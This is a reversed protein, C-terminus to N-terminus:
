RQRAMAAPYPSGHLAYRLGAFAALAVPAGLISLYVTSGTLYSAVNALLMVAIAVFLPIRDTPDIGTMRTDVNDTSGGLIIVMTWAALCPRYTTHGFM